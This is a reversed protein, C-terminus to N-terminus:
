VMTMGGDIALSQGTIFGADDSALYLVASAVEEPRGMRGLPVIRKIEEDIDRGKALSAMIDSGPTKIPGPCVCNVNINYQAVEQALAKTFAIIGGKAASYPIVSGAGVLGAVASTNIIKGYRNEIMSDIVAHSFAMTSIMNLRISKEWYTETQYTFPSPFKHDPEGGVYNFLIDIKGYLGMAQDVVAKITESNTVDGQVSTVVGETEQIANVTTELNKERIDNIVVFAGERAFGLAAARGMGDGGGSIVAVKGKFRM